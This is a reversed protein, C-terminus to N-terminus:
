GGYSPEYKARATSGPKTIRNLHACQPCWSRHLVRSPPAQWIHGRHCQWTLKYNVNRFSESLCLGGRTKAFAQMNELTYYHLERYCQPCGGKNMRIASPTSQWEHGKGCRWRLHSRSHLFEDSLCTWGREAALTQMAKLAKKSRSNCVSCFHGSLIMAPTKEWQHGKSCSFSLHTQIGLYEASLCAGGWAHAIRHMMLLQIERLEPGPHVGAPGSNFQLIAEQVEPALTSFAPKRKRSNGGIM